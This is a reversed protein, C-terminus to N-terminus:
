IGEFKLAQCEVKFTGVKEDRLSTMLKSELARQSVVKAKQRLKGPSLAGAPTEEIPTTTQDKDRQSNSLKQGKPRSLKFM